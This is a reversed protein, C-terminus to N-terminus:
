STFSIGRLPASTWGSYSFQMGFIRNTVQNTSAYFTMSSINRNYFSFFDDFATYNVGSVFRGVKASTYYTQGAVESIFGSLFLATVFLIRIM